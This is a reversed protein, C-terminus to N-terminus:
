SRANFAVISDALAPSAPFPNPTTASSIDFNATCVSSAVLDIPSKTSFICFSVFLVKLSIFSISLLTCSDVPFTFPLISEKLYITSLTFSM